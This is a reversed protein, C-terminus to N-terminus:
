VAQHLAEAVHLDFLRRLQTRLEAVFQQAKQFRGKSKLFREATHSCYHEMNQWVSDADLASRGSARFTGSAHFLTVDSWRLVGAWVHHWLAHHEDPLRELRVGRRKLLEISTTLGIEDGSGLFRWGEDGEHFGAAIRRMHDEWLPRLGCDWPLLLAGGSYYPFMSRLRANQRPSCATEAREGLLEGLASAIREKPPEMDLLPYIIPWYRKPLWPKYVPSAAICHGMGALGSFDSAVLLDVDLLLVCDERGRVELGRLKNAFRGRNADLPEHVSLRADCREALWRVSAPPEGICAVHLPFDRAAGANEIWSALFLLTRAEFVHAQEGLFDPVIVVDLSGAV